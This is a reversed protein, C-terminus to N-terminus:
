ANIRVEIAHGRLEVEDQDFGLPEGAAVSLQLAVLDRGCIM